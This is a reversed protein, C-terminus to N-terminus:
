VFDKDNATPGYSIIGVPTDLSNQIINAMEMRSVNEYETYVPVSTMLVEGLKQQYDLDGRPGLKIDKALKNQLSFFQEAMNDIEYNNAIKWVPLSEARDLGTIVLKDIQSCVKAAYRHAVADFHGYRFAGQWQGQGNHYERLDNELSPDETVFPGPGHRTTYARVLGLTEIPFNYRIEELQRLANEPTTHSWTTYPHFGYDEDLLVGQAGEFLIQDYIDALYALYGPNVIKVKDAWQWYIDAVAQPQSIDNLMNWEDSESVSGFEEIAQNL